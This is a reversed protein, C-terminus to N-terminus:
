PKYEDAGCDCHAGQPRTDGDIDDPPCSDGGHDVCPSTATLHYNTSSVLNPTATSSTSDVGCATSINPGGSADNGSALIAAIAYSSTTGCFVGGGVNNVVTNFVFRTPSGSYNGLSVGYGGAAAGNGAVVTNVVDFASASTQIGVGQNNLVYCRDMHLTAGGSVSVGADNGGSITLDRLTVDGATINVLIHSGVGLNAIKASSQGAVLVHPSAVAGITLPGVPYAVGNGKVVIVTKIATLAGTAADSSCFPSASTGSGLNSSCSASNQLYIVANDGPCSGDLGCVVAPSINTCDSDKACARCQNADCVPKTGVKCDGFVNCEV